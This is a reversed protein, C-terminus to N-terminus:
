TNIALCDDNEQDQKKKNMTIQNRNNRLQNIYILGDFQNEYFYTYLM